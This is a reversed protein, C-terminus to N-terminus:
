VTTIVPPRYDKLTLIEPLNKSLYFYVGAVGIVGSMVTFIFVLLFWRIIKASGGRRGKKARKKRVQSTRKDKAM